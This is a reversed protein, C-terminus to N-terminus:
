SVVVFVILVYGYFLVLFFYNISVDSLANALVAARGNGYIASATVALLNFAFLIHEGQAM